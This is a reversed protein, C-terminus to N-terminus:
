TSSMVFNTFNQLQHGPAAHYPSQVTSSRNDPGVPQRLGSTSLQTHCFFQKGATEAKGMPDIKAAIRLEGGGNFGGVVVQRLTKNIGLQILLQVRRRRRMFRKQLNLFITRLRQSIISSLPLQNRIPSRAGAASAAMVLLRALRMNAAELLVPKVAVVGCPHPRFRSQLNRIIGRPRAPISRAIM